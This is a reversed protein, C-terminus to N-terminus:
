RTFLTTDFAIGVAVIPDNDTADHIRLDGSITDTFSYTVGIDGYHGGNDIYGYTAGLALKDTLAYDFGGEISRGEFQPDYSLEGRVSLKDNVTQGLALIVEGCCDGSHDYYYRYYSLDYSFGSALENRYGAYLDVEISDQDDFDVTSAWIGAYFGHSEVEVYGQLAPGDDSQTYGSSVYNSYLATGASVTVDQASAAGAALTGAAALAALAFNRTMRMAPEM